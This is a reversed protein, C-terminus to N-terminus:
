NSSDLISLRNALEITPTLHDFVLRIMFGAGVFAKKKGDDIVLGKNGVSLVENGNLPSAKRVENLEKPTSWRLPLGLDKAREILADYDIGILVQIKGFLIDTIMEEPFPKSFISECIKIDLTARLDHVPFDHNMQKLAYEGIEGRWEERYVGVNIIGEISTCAWKKGESEKILKFLEDHYTQQPYKSEKLNVRANPNKQYEGTDNSLIKATKINTEKQKLMRKMQKKFHDEPMQDIRQAADLQNVDYFHFLDLASKNVKGTKIEHIEIGEMTWVLLDGVQINNTLDTILAFKSPNKNIENAAALTAKFGNDNFSKSGEEELYHRAILERRGGFIQWVITDALKRYIREYFKNERLQNVVKEVQTKDVPRATRAVKLDQNLIAEEESLSSLKTLIIDQAKKMGENAYGFFEELNGVDQHDAHKKFYKDSGYSRILKIIQKVEKIIENM